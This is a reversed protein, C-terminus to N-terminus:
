RTSLTSSFCVVTSPLTEAKSVHFLEASCFIVASAIMLVTDEVIVCALFSAISSALAFVVLASFFYGVVVCIFLAIWCFASEM